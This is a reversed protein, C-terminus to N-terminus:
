TEPPKAGGSENQEAEIGEVSQAESLSQLQFHWDLERVHQPNNRWDAAVKVYLGLFVKCDLLAELEKRAETGLKKLMAGKSGILIRKQSDREVNLTAEIRLLKPTEEFKDVFVALAYPLEHYMVKIAKERIIEAALFREPQDTVQDEPFFPENEPLRQFVEDLIANTRTGKLASIPVISATGFEKQFRDILPLLKPKPVLDVKNLALITKEPFRKAKEILWHDPHPSVHTADIILLLLDIGELAAAVEHMMQRGLASEPEHIGPTDIFAIQGRKETVIGQIRNRTTQPRHTVIAIKQGVLRNLLTSKGANPRGVIAVFGARPKPARVAAQQPKANM